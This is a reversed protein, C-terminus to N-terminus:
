TGMCVGARCKDCSDYCINVKNIDCISTNIPYMRGATSVSANKTCNRCLLGFKGCSFVCVLWEGIGQVAPSLKAPPRMDLPQSHVCAAPGSKKEKLQAAKREVTAVAKAVRKEDDSDDALDDERYENVVAWGLESRNFLSIAKQRSKLLEIGEEVSNKAQQVGSSTSSSTSM